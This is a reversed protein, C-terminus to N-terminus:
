NVTLIPSVFTYGSVTKYRQDKFELYVLISNFDPYVSGGVVQGTKFASTVVKGPKMSAYSSSKFLEPTSEGDSVIWELAVMHRSFGHGKSSRSLSKAHAKAVELAM